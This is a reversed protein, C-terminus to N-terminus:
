VCVRHAAFLGAAESASLWSDDLSILACLPFLFIQSIDPDIQLKKGLNSTFLM